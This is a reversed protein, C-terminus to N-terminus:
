AAYSQQVYVASRKNHVTHQTARVQQKFGQMMNPLKTTRHSALVINSKTWMVFRLHRSLVGDSSIISAGQNNQVTFVDIRINFYPYKLRQLDIHFHICVWSSGVESLGSIPEEDSHRQQLQGQCSLQSVTEAISCRQM